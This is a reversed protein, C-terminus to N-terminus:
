PGPEQPYSGPHTNIGTAREIADVRQHASDIPEKVGNIAAASGFVAGLAILAATRLGDPPHTLLGLGHALEAVGWLLIVGLAVIAAVIQAYKGLPSRNM